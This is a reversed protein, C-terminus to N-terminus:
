EGKQDLEQGLLRVADVIGFHQRFWGDIRDDTIGVKRLQALHRALDYRWQADPIGAERDKKMRRARGALLSLIMENAIM